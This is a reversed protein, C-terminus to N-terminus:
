AVSEVPDIAKDQNISSTGQPVHKISNFEKNWIEKRVSQIFSIYDIM